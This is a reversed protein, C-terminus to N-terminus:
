GAFVPNHRASLPKRRLGLNFSPKWSGTGLAAPIETDGAPPVLSSTSVTPVTSTELPGAGRATGAVAPRDAVAALAASSVAPNLTLPMVPDAVRVTSGVSGGAPSTCGKPVSTCIMM